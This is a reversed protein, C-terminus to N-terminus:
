SSPSPKDVYAELPTTDFSAGETEELAEESGAETGEAQKGARKPKLLREARMVVVIRRDGLMPFVNASAAIDVPSAHEEGAYLREVAFPRDAPDVTVEIAEVMQEILK